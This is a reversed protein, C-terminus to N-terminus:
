VELLARARAALDHEEVDAATELAEKVWEDISGWREYLEGDDYTYVGPEGAILGIAMGEVDEAFGVLVRDEGDDELMEVLEEMLEAEPNLEGSFLREIVSRAGPGEDYAELVRALLPPTEIGAAKARKLWRELYLQREFRPAEPAKITPAELVRESVESPGGEGAPKWAKLKTVGPQVDVDLLEIRDGGKLGKHEGVNFTLRGFREHEAIAMGSSGVFTVEAVEAGTSPSVSRSRLTVPQAGDGLSAAEAVNVIMLKRHSTIVLRDPAGDRGVIGSAFPAGEFPVAFPVWRPGDPGPIALAALGGRCTVGVAAGFSVVSGSTLLPLRESRGAADWAVAAHAGGDVVTLVLLDASATVLDRRGAVTMTVNDSDLTVLEVLNGEEGERHVAFYHEGAFLIPGIPDDGLRKRWRREDIKQGANSFTLLEKKRGVILQEDDTWTSDPYREFDHVLNLEGTGVDLRFIKGASRWWRVASATRPWRSSLPALPIADDDLDRSFITEGTESSLGHVVGDDHVVITGECVGVAAGAGGPHALVREVSGEHDLSFTTGHKTVWVRGDDTPLVKIDSYPLTVEIANLM